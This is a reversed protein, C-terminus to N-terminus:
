VADELDLDNCLRTYLAPNSIELEALINNAEEERGQNFLQDLAGLQAQYDASPQAQPKSAPIRRKVGGSGSAGNGYKLMLEREKLEFFRDLMPLATPLISNAANLLKEGDSLTEKEDADELLNNLTEELHQIRAAQMSNTQMLFKNEAMLEANEKITAIYEKDMKQPDKIDVNVKPEIRATPVHDVGKTFYYSHVNKRSADYACEIVYTGAPLDVDIKQRIFSWHARILEPKGRTKKAAVIVSEDTGILRVYPFVGRLVNLELEDLREIKVKNM